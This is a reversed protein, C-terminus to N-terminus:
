QILASRLREERIIRLKSKPNKFKKLFASGLKSGQLLHTWGREKDEGLVLYDIDEGLFKSTPTIGGRIQIEQCAKSRPGMALTGTFLFKRGAFSIDHEEDILEHELILVPISQDNQFATELIAERKNEERKAQAIRRSETEFDLKQVLCKCRLIPRMTAFEYVKKISDFGISNLRPFIIRQLLDTTAEVDGLASHSQSCRLQYFDRLFDLRHTLHEPLARRSLAWSCFGPIGVPPINLRKFEPFLVRNWDFQLFHSVIPIEGLHSRLQSYAEEPPLGNESIFDTTYGHVLTAELPIEIGHNIFVRFPEGVATLGEFRQAAVEIAYIPAYLGDTETDILAWASM